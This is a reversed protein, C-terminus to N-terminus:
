IAARTPATAFIASCSLWRLTLTESFPYRAADPGCTIRPKPAFLSGVSPKRKGFVYLKSRFDVEGNRTFSCSWVNSVFQRFMSMDYARLLFRVGYSTRFIADIIWPSDPTGPSSLSTEATM